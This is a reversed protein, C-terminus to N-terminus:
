RVESRAAQPRKGGAPLSGSPARRLTWAARVGQTGAGGWGGVRHVGQTRPRPWSM